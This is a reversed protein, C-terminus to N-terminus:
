SWAPLLFAPGHTGMVILGVHHNRAYDVIALAPSASTLISTVTPPGSKDSDVVLEDLRRRADDEVQHQLDPAIAAYNEAGFGSMFVNSAVHLVHLTSGFRSALERGYILAVDSPESFDTAVLVNELTIM